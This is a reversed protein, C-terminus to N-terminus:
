GQRRASRGASLITTVTLRLGPVIDHLDVVDAERLLAPETGGRLAYVGHRIPDVMLVVRVGHEILERCRDLMAGVLQGPSIIEVALDPPDTFPAPFTGSEDEEPIREWAYVIVDPVYAQGGVVIRTETFSQATRRLQGQMYVQSAFWSQISGHESSPPVKQSVVGHRLELAPKVEPLALFEALTMREPTVAM